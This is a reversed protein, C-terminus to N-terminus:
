VLERSLTQGTRDLINSMLGRLKLILLREVVQVPEIRSDKM